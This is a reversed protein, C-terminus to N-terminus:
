RCDHGRNTPEQMPSLRVASPRQFVSRARPVVARPAIAHHRMTLISEASAFEQAAEGPRHASPAEFHARPAHHRRVEATQGPGGLARECVARPHEAPRARAWEVAWMTAVRSESAPLELGFAHSEATAGAQQRNCRRSDRAPQSPWYAKSTRIPPCPSLRPSRTEPPEEAFPDFLLDYGNADFQMTAARLHSGSHRLLVRNRVAAAIRCRM